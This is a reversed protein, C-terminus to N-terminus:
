CCIILFTSFFIKKIGTKYIEFGNQEGSICIFDSKPFKYYNKLFLNQFNKSITKFIIFIDM